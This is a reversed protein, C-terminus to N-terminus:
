QPIETLFLSDPVEPSLCAIQAPRIIQTGDNDVDIRIDRVPLRAKPITTSTRLKQFIAKLNPESPEHRTVPVMAQPSHSNSTASQQLVVKFETQSLTDLVEIDTYAVGEVSQIVSQVQSLYLDAGLERRAFSFTRYLADRINPEVSEWEYDPQLRVRASLFVLLLERVGINVSLLPDGLQRYAQLLNAFLDSEESIPLDGAGAITVHVTPQAGVLLRKAVAKEIGAYNRAFDAYDRVSVLRDLAMVALPANARIQDVNEPDAGGTAPFPNTVEKLGLPRNALQTITEAKVNGAIGLGVRYEARVNEKGTPLRVGTSGDGFQVSSRWAEDAQVVYDRANPPSEILSEQEHWLLNNVRVALTSEVGAATAAPLYTLPGKALSMKQFSQSADGSGLVQRVTEGHTARAVNALIRSRKAVQQIQLDRDLFVRTHVTDGPLARLKHRVYLITAQESAFVGALGM